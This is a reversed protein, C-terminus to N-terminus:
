LIVDARILGFFIGLGLTFASVVALGIELRLSRNQRNEYLFFAVVCVFAIVAILGFALRQGEFSIPPAFEAM